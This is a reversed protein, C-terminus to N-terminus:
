WYLMKNQVANKMISFFFFMNQIDSTCDTLIFKKPKNNVYKLKEKLIFDNGICEFLNNKALHHFTNGATKFQIRKALM